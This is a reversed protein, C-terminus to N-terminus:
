ERERQSEGVRKKRDRKTERQGQRDSKVGQRKGEGEKRGKREEQPIWSLSSSISM